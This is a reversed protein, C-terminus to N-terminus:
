NEIIVKNLDFYQSIIWQISKMVEYKIKGKFTCKEELQAYKIFGKTKIEEMLEKATEKIFNEKM